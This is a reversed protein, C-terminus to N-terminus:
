RSKKTTAGRPRGVTPKYSKAFAEVDASRIMWDRGFKEGSLKGDILWRRVQSNDVGFRSAVDAVTMMSDTTKM